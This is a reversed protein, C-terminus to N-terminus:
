LLQQVACSDELWRLLVRLRPIGDVKTNDVHVRRIQVATAIQKSAPNAAQVKRCITTTPPVRAAIPMGERSQRRRRTKQVSRSSM